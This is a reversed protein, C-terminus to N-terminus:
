AGARAPSRRHVKRRMPPGCRMAWCAARAAAEGLAAGPAKEPVKRTFRVALEDEQSESFRRVTWYYPAVFRQGLLATFANVGGGELEIYNQLDADHDFRAVARTTGLEAFRRAQLAEAAALAQDRSMSVNLQLLPM